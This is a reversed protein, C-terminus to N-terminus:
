IIERSIPRNERLQNHNYSRAVVPKGTSDSYEIFGQCKHRGESPRDSKDCEYLTFSKKHHELEWKQIEETTSSWFTEGCDSCNSEPM